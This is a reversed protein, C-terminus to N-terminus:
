APSAKPSPHLMEALIRAGLCCEEVQRDTLKMASALTSAWRVEFPDMRRDLLAIMLVGTLLKERIDLPQLSVGSICDVLTMRDIRAPSKGEACADESLGLIAQAFLGAASPQHDISQDECAAAMARAALFWLTAREIEREM